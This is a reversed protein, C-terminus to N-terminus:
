PWNSRASTIASSITMWWLYGATGAWTSSRTSSRLMQDDSKTRPRRGYITIIDCFECQFPCGRSFQVTMSLYKDLKLLDFRPIPINSIDPKQDIVYLRNASGGELDAAIAGFTEDPEGVVVHNALPLLEEPESSAYPGGVITRKGLTRARRLVDRMAESQVRMGGVMVIDACVIDSDLLLELNQDVLRLTWSNPCLAAVTILGLPPHLVVQPLLDFMRSFSWFSEPFQPWVLLAKINKGLPASEQPAKTESRDTDSQGTTTHQSM